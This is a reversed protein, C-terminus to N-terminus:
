IQQCRGGSKQAPELKKLGVRNKIDNQMGLFLRSSRRPFRSMEAIRSYIEDPTLRPKPPVPDLCEITLQPDRETTWDYSRYRIMMYDAGPSLEGWNGSHGEPREASFLVEFNGDADFTMDTDDFDRYGRGTDSIDGDRMGTMGAGTSFTLLKVTGRNGAVRYRLGPKLPSYLYIDDPNPQLTYVPNWLPSWDPHEGDAHFYAFYSFSLSMMIQRFIDARYEPDDPRWTNAIEDVAGELDGLYALLGSGAAETAEAM